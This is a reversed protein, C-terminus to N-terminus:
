CYGAIEIARRCSAVAALCLSRRARKEGGRAIYRKKGLGAMYLGARLIGRERALAPTRARTYKARLKYLFLPVSPEVGFRKSGSADAAAAPYSKMADRTAASNRLACSSSSSSSSPSSSSASSSFSLPLVRPPLQYFRPLIASRNAGVSPLPRSRYSNAFTFPRNARCTSRSHPSILADRNFVRIYVGSNARPCNNRVPADRLAADFMRADADRPGARGPFAIM